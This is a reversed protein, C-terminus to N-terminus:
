GPLIHGGLRGNEDLFLIQGLVIDFDVMKEGGTRGTFSEGTELDFRVFRGSNNAIFVRGEASRMGLIGPILEDSVRILPERTIDQALLLGASFVMVTIVIFSRFSRIM